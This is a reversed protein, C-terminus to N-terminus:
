SFPAAPPTFPFTTYQAAKSSRFEDIYGGFTDGAAASNGLTFTNASSSITGSSTATAVAVGDFTITWASGNRIVAIHVFATSSITASFSMLPAGVGAVFLQPSGNRYRFLLRGAWADFLHQDGSGAATVKKAWCELTFSGSGYDFWSASPTQLRAGNATFDGCAGGFKSTATTITVANPTWTNSKEDPFSTSGHTGDFHLLSGVTPDSGGAAAAFFTPGVYQPHMRPGGRLHGRPLLLGTEVDREYDGVRLKM